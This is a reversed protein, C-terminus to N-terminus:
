PEGVAVPDCTLVKPLRNTVTDAAIKEAASLYQQALVPPTQQAAANDQFPFGETTLEVAFALNLGSVDGLLDSVTNVYEANTLRRLPTPDVDTIPGASCSMPMPVGTGTGTGSGAGVGSGGGSAQAPSASPVGDGVKGTCGSGWLCSLALVAIGKTSSRTKMFTRRWRDATTTDERSIRRALRCIVGDSSSSSSGCGSRPSLSRTTTLRTVAKPRVGSGRPAAASAPSSYARRTSVSIPRFKKPQRTSTSSSPRTPRGTATTSAPAWRSWPWWSPTSLKRWGLFHSGPMEGAAMASSSPAIRVSRTM